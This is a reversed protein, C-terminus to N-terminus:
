TYRLIYYVKAEELTEFHVSVGEKNNISYQTVRFGSNDGADIIYPYYGVPSLYRIYYCCYYGNYDNNNLYRTFGDGCSSYQETICSM